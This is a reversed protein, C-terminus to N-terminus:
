LVLEEVRPAAGCWPSLMSESTDTPLIESVTGRCFTYTNILFSYHNTIVKKDNRTVAINHYLIEHFFISYRRYSICIFPCYIYTLSINEPTFISITEASATM